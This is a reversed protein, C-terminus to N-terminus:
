GRSPRRAPRRAASGRWPAPRPRPTERRAARGARRARCRRTGPRRSRPGRCCRRRTAPAGFAEDDVLAHQDLDHARAGAVRHGVALDALDDDGRQDVRSGASGSRCRRGTPPAAPGDGQPRVLTRSLPQSPRASWVVLTLPMNTWGDCTAAITLRWGSIARARSTTSLGPRCRGSSAARRPAPWGSTAPRRSRRRSGRRSWAARRPRTRAGPPQRVVALDDVVDAGVASRSYDAAERRFAGGRRSVEDRSSAGSPPFGERAVLPPLMSCGRYAIGAFSTAASRTISPAANAGTTRAPREAGRVNGAAVGAGGTAAGACGGRAAGSRADRRMTCTAPSPGGSIRSCPSM